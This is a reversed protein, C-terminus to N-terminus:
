WFSYGEALWSSGGTFNTVNGVAAFWYLTYMSFGWTRRERPVPRLDDNDLRSAASPASPVELWSALGM